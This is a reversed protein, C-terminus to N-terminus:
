WRPIASGENKEGRGAFDTDVVTKVAGVLAVASASNSRSRVNVAM